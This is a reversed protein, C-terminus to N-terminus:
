KEDHFMIVRVAKNPALSIRVEDGLQTVIVDPKSDYSLICNNREPTVILEYRSSVVGSSFKLIRKLNPFLVKFGFADLENSFSSGGANYYWAHSGMGTCCLLGSCNFGQKQGLYRISFECTEYAIKQGFYIDNVAYRNVLRGNVIAQLRKWQDVVFDQSKLSKLRKKFNTRNVSTLAGHSGMGSKPRFDSNMGLLISNQYKQACSLFTGDGGCCLILDNEKPKIADMEEDKLYEVTLGIQKAYEKFNHIFQNQNRHSEKLHTQQLSTLKKITESSRTRKQYYDLESTKLVCYIHNFAFM